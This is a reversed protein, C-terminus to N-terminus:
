CSPSPAECGGTEELFHRRSAALAKVAEVALLFRVRDPRGLPVTEVPGPSDEADMRDGGEMELIKGCKLGIGYIGDIPAM